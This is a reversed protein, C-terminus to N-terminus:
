ILGKRLFDYFQEEAKVNAMHDIAEEVSGFMEDGDPHIFEGADWDARVQAIFGPTKFGEAWKALLANLDITRSM